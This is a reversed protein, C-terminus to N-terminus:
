SHLHLLDASVSVGAKSVQHTLVPSTSTRAAQAIPSHTEGLDDSHGGYRTNRDAQRWNNKFPIEKFIWRKRESIVLIDKTDPDELEWNRRRESQIYFSCTHQLLPIQRKHDTFQRRPVFNSYISKLKYSCGFLWKYHTYCSTFLLM